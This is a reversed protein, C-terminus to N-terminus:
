DGMYCTLTESPDCTLTWYTESPDRRYTESLLLIKTIELYIEGGEILMLYLFRQMNKTRNTQITSKKFSLLFYKIQFALRNKKLQVYSKRLMFKQIQENGISM